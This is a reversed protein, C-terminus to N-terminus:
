PEVDAYNEEWAVSRPEPCYRLPKWLWGRGGYENPLAQAGLQKQYLRRMAMIRRNATRQQEDSNINNEYELPFAKLLLVSGRRLFEKSIALNLMQWVKRGADLRTDIILREFCVITGYDFPFSHWDWSRAAALALRADALSLHDAELTFQAPDVLGPADWEFFHAHACKNQSTSVSIHIDRRRFETEEPSYGDLTRLRPRWCDVRYGNEEFSWTPKRQRGSTLLETLVTERGLKMSWDRGMTPTVM